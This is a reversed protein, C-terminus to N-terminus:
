ARSRVFGVFLCYVCISLLLRGIVVVKVNQHDIVDHSFQSILVLALPMFVMM